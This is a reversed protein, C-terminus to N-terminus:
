KKGGGGLAGRLLQCILLSLVVGGYRTGWDKSDINDCKEGM